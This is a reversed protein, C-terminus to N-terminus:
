VGFYMLGRKDQLITWVQDGSNFEKFSHNELMPMGIEAAAQGPTKPPSSSRQQASCLSAVALLAPLLSRRHVAFRHALHAELNRHSPVPCRLSGLTAVELPSADSMVVSPIGRALGDFCQM